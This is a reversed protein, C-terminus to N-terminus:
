ENKKQTLAREMQKLRKGIMVLSTRQLTFTIDGAVLFELGMLMARSINERFHQFVTDRKEKALESFAHMSARIAGVVIIIVGITEIAYGTISIVQTFLNTM